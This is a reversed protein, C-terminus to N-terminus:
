PQDAGSSAFMASHPAWRDAWPQAAELEFALEYLTRDAGPAAMFMSGIPLGSASSHFLPVSMAPAAVGNAVATYSLVARNRELLLAAPMDHSIYGIRPTEMPIVPTLWVDYSGYFQAFEASLQKFYRLGRDYADASFSAGHRGMAVTARTLLGADEAKRGTLSEVSALLAPMKALMIGEISEFMAKGNVPNDVEVVHHGLSRCLVVAKDLAERVSVEPQQGFVNRSSVAIRLRKKGPGKVLGVPEYAAQNNHNETAALLAASDRVTRSLCQHTRLFEHSGDAEGSVQRYRSPKM